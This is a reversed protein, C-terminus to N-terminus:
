KSTELVTPALYETDRGVFGLFGSGKTRLWSFGIWYLGNTPSCGDTQIPLGNEHTGPIDIWAYNNRFGTAWIITRPSCNTGDTMIIQNGAAKIARPHEVLKKKKVLRQLNSGIIPMPEETDTRKSVPVDMYGFKLLYWFIDKGMFRQPFQKPRRDISIHVPHTALLEEAIQVGSNGAGVILVDGDSIQHPGRYDASHIQIINDAVDTAFSPTWPTHQSGTAIIVKSARLEGSPTEAVFSGPEQGLRVVKTNMQVPLSFKVAYSMLYEAVDDKTPYSNRRGPFKMGPLNCYQRPTFLKLSDYRSAWSHGIHSTADVILFNKLGRTKLEAGMALGAQGAGIILVDLMNSM